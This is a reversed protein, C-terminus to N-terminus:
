MAGLLSLINSGMSPNDTMGSQTTYMSGNGILGSLIGASPSIGSTYAGPVGSLYQLPTGLAQALQSGAANQNARESGPVSLSVGRIM